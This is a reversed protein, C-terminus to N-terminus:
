TKTPPLEPPRDSKTEIVLRTTISEMQRGRLRAWSPLRLVTSGVIGAGFLSIMSVTPLIQGLHGAGAASIAMVTSAGLLVLGAAISVGASGKVTQLRLRHGSPTPELLAQLNGNTWQRFSGTSSVVGRAGFVERLEVVLQEWEAETLRRDLAVTRQVGVPMGLLSRVAAEPQVDLSRAARDVAEPSIGAERGIAQLEALTMGEDGFRQVSTGQPGESAIRFIVAIEEDNYRRDPMAM